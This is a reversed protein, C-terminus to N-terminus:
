QKNGKYKKQIESQMAKMKDEIKCGYVVMEILMRIVLTKFQADSLSAIGEDSLQIKKQLKSRNKRQIM